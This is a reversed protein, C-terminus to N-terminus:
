KRSAEARRRVANNVIVAVLLFGGVFAFRWNSNWGAFPIGQTSMALILAGVAGGAASGYGGTLLCGGVVAAIIYFFEQGDGVNAQVSNLRFAILMGTLWAAGAVIMFLAVKTRAAPVGVSRAALKNGGVAFVWSGFQTRTMVWTAIAAFVLFWLISIRYSVVATSTALEEQRAFLLRLAVATAAAVLGAIALLTGLRDAGHDKWRRAVFLHNALAWAAYVAAALLLVSFLEVRFKRSESEAQVFFAIAVLVGSTLLSIWLGAMHDGARNAARLLLVVGVVTLGVFLGARAGQVTLLFGLVTQSRSDLVAAVAAGAVVLALGLGVHRVLTPPLPAGTPATSREYRWLAVGTVGAVIGAGVLASGIANVARGDTALLVAFGGLGTLAGAAAVVLGRAQRRDSRRFTQELLGVVILVAALILLATFVRDRGEWIRDNRTWQSAFIRRFFDYGQSRDMGEVIVKDTFLKSFGLKAGMLIFYTGLTVIFSPLLTKEVMTGNLWGIVMAAAFSLPVAIFLSLGAGGFEGAEKALLIVLIGTAGTMAGASLDFEGGIMLMSVAVAMIGLTAAVDLYNATGAATGFVDTAAWFFVWVGAAGILAGIEPRVLLRQIPGRHALREDGVPVSPRIGGTVVGARHDSPPATVTM